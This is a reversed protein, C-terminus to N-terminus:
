FDKRTSFHSYVVIDVRQISGNIYFIILTDRKEYKQNRVYKRGEEDCWNVVRKSKREAGTRSDGM